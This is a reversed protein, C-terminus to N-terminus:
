FLSDIDKRIDEYNVEGSYAFETVGDKIILTYPLIGRWGYTEQIFYQLNTADDGEIIPYRIKHGNIYARATDRDMRDQAQIAIVELKGRYRRRIEEIIPLQKLCHPCDKGFMELIIVKNNYEPFLFGNPREVIHIVKGRISRLTHNEGNRPKHTLEEESITGRDCDSKKLTLDDNCEVDPNKYEKYEKKYVVNPKKNDGTFSSMCGTNVMMTTSLIFGSIITNKKM